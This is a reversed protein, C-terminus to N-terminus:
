LHHKQIGARNGNNYSFWMWQVSLILACVVLLHLVSPRIVTNLYSWNNEEHWQVPQFMDNEFASSYVQQWVFGGYTYIHVKIRGVDDCYLESLPVNKPCQAKMQGPKPDTLGFGHILNNCRSLLLSASHWRM